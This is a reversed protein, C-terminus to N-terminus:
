AERIGRRHEWRPAGVIPQSDSTQKLRNGPIAPLPPRSDFGQLICYNSCAMFKGALRTYVKKQKTSLSKSSTDRAAIFRLDAGLSRLSRLCKIKNHRAKCQFFILPDGCNNASALSRSARELPSLKHPSRPPLPKAHYRSIQSQVM